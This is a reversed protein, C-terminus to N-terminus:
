EGSAFSGQTRFDCDFTSRGAYVGRAYSGPTAFDCDFTSHGAYVGRAYSGPTAFDCDFTSRGAYVGRAYSGPAREGQGISGAAQGSSRSMGAGLKSWGIRRLSKLTANM